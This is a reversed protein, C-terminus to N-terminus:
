QAVSKSLNSLVKHICLLNQQVRERDNGQCHLLPLVHAGSCTYTHLRVNSCNRSVVFPFYGQSHVAAQQIRTTHTIHEFYSHLNAWNPHNPCNKLQLMRILACYCELEAQIVMRFVMACWIVSPCSHRKQSPAWAVLDNSGTFPRHVPFAITGRALTCQYLQGHM